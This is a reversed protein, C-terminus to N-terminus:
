AQICSEALSSCTTESLIRSSQHITILSQGSFVNLKYSLCSFLPATMVWKHLYYVLCSLGQFKHEAKESNNVDPHYKLSLEYYATKIEDQTATHPVDLVDYLSKRKNYTRNHICRALTISGSQRRLSFLRPQVHRTFAIRM